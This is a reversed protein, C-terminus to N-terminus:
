DKILARELKKYKFYMAIRWPVIMSFALLFFMGALEGPHITSSLYFKMVSRIILLSILILPFLKSRKMYILNDKVVFNSTYILFISFFMGVVVAELIEMSTLRFYPVVYMLAGTSMFFPPLIIKKVNTPYNQAKMRVIIVATGMFLAVLMSIVFYM